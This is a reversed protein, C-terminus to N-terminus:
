NFKPSKAKLTVPKMLPLGLHQFSDCFSYPKDGIYILTQSKAADTGKSQEGTDPDIFKVREDLLLIASARAALKQFRKTSSDHHCIWIQEGWQTLGYEVWTLYDSFPPNIYNLEKWSVSLGDFEPNPPCPDFWFRTGYFANVADLIYQPTRWRDKKDHRQHDKTM